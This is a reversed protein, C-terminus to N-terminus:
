RTSRLCGMLAALWASPLLRWPLRLVMLLLVRSLPLLGERACRLLFITERQLYAGGHRRALHEEGVAACVLEQELNAFAAGQAALRLWLDWDEFAPCPRYNGAALVAERCLAVTPHNIPNRWGMLRRIAAASTPVCRTGAAAGGSSREGLQAGLVALHPHRGLHRLQYEARRPHSRDDADSRLVWRTRCANLGRALVAGTGQWSAAELIRVPLGSNQLVGRLPDPLAGDVSVVLCSAPWTQSALSALVETLAEPSEWPALPMLWEYPQLEHVLEPPDGVM